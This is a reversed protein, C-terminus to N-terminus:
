RPNAGDGTWRGIGPFVFVGKTRTEEVATEAWLAFFAKTQATTVQLAKAIHQVLEKPTLPNDRLKIGAKISSTM